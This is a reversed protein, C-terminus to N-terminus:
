HLMASIVIWNFFNLFSITCVKKGDAKQWRGEAKM